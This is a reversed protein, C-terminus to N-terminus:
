LGSRAARDVIWGVVPIRFFEGRRARAAYRAAITVAAAFVGLDLLFGALYVTITPGPGLGGAAIVVALPLGCAALVASSALVGLVTAQRAHVLAWKSKPKEPGVLLAFAVPWL